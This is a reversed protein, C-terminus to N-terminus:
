RIQLFHFDRLNKTQLLHVCDSDWGRRWCVELTAAKRRCPHVCNGALIKCLEV